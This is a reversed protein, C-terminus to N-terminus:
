STLAALVVRDRPLETLGDAGPWDMVSVAVRLDLSAGVVVGSKWEKSTPPAGAGTFVGDVQFGSQLVNVKAAQYAVNADLGRAVEFSFGLLWEDGLKKLGAGVM